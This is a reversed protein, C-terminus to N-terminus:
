LAVREKMEREAPFGEKASTAEVRPTSSSDQHEATATLTATLAVNSISPREMLQNAVGVRM